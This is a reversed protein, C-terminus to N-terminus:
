CYWRYPEESIRPVAFSIELAPVSAAESTTEKGGRREESRAGGARGAPRAALPGPARRQSQGGREGRGGLDGDAPGPGPRGGADLDSSCVDSSWDRSFSTHRRRSSFFFISRTNNINKMDNIF